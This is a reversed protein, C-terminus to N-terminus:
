LGHAPGTAPTLGALFPNGAREAGIATRDPWPGCVV